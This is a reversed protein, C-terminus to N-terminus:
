RLLRTMQHAVLAADLVGIHMEDRTLVGTLYRVLGKNITAPPTALTSSPYRTIGHLEAVPLAFAQGESRLVVLRAFTHRRSAKPADSEDIGLLTALSVLPLLTGGVNVLGLLGGGSRHPLRHGPAQPAVSDIMAAPLALWERGLRFVLAASDEAAKDQRAQRFHHAWQERYQDSVPRRLNHQAAEAVVECNRCHIHQVLKPCSQDGSVGIKNWCDDLAPLLQAGTDAPNHDPLTM